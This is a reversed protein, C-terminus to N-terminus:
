LEAYRQVGALYLEPASEASEAMQFRYGPSELLLPEANRRQRQSWLLELTRAAETAVHQPYGVSREQMARGQDLVSDGDPGNPIEEEGHAHDDPTERGPKDGM